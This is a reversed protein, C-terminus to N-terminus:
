GDTKKLEPNTHMLSLSVFKVSEVSKRVRKSHKKVWRCGLAARKGRKVTDMPM